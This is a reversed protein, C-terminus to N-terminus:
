VLGYSSENKEKKKERAGKRMRYKQNIKIGKKAGSKKLIIERRKLMM